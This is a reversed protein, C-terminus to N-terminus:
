VVHNHPCCMGGGDREPRMQLEEMNPDRHGGGQTVVLMRLKRYTRANSVSHLLKVSTSAGKRLKCGVMHKIEDLQQILLPRPARRDCCRIALHIVRLGLM